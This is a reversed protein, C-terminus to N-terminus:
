WFRAFRCLFLISYLGSGGIFVVPCEVSLDGERLDFKCLTSAFVCMECYRERQFVSACVACM